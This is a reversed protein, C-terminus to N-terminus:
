DGEPDSSCGVQKIWECYTGDGCEISMLLPEFVGGWVNVMIASYQQLGCCDVYETGLRKWCPGNLPRNLGALYSAQAFKFPLLDTSLEAQSPNESVVNWRRPDNPDAVHLLGDFWATGNAFIVGNIRVTVHSGSPPRIGSALLRSKVADCANQGVTLSVKAGPQLAELKSLPKKGPAQGYALMFPRDASTSKTDPLNVELVLYDIATGSTNEVQVVPQTVWSDNERANRGLRSKGTNLTFATVKIPEPMTSSVGDAKTVARQQAISPVSTATLFIFCGVLLKLHKM